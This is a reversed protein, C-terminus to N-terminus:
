IHQELADATLKIHFTLLNKIERLSELYVKLHQWNLM